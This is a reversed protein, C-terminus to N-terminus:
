GEKGKGALAARVQSDLADLVEFDVPRGFEYMQDLCKEAARVLADREAEVAALSDLLWRLDAPAHAILDADAAAGSEGLRPGGETPVVHYDHGCDCVEYVGGYNHQYARWPGQSAAALRAEIEQRREDLQESM